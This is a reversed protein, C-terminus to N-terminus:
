TELGKPSMHKLIVKRDSLLLTTRILFPVLEKFAEYFQGSVEMLKLLDVKEIIELQKGADQDRHAGVYNRLENLLGHHEQKFKNIKKMIGNFREWEADSLPLTKLSERIAM